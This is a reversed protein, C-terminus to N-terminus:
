KIREDHLKNYFDQLEDRYAGTIDNYISREDVDDVRDSDGTLAFMEDKTQEILDDIPINFMECISAEDEMRDYIRQLFEEKTKIYYRPIHYGVITDGVYQAQVPLWKLQEKQQEYEEPTLFGNTNAIIRDWRINKYNQADFIRKASWWHELKEPIWEINVHQLTRM